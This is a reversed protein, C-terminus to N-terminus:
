GSIANVNAGNAVLIRGIELKGCRAAHHLPTYGKLSLADVNAGYRLLLEV